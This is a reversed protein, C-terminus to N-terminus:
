SHSLVNIIRGDPDRLFFRRVGWPEVKPGYTIAAGAERSRALVDDLDDVEISLHPVDAGSGGESAITLQVPATDGSLTVVWEMNMAESLGFVQKYFFATEQPADSPLDAVIRLVTM